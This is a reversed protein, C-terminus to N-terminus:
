GRNGSMFDWFEKPLEKKTIVSIPIALAMVLRIPLWLLAMPLRLWSSWRAELKRLVLERDKFELQFHAQIQALEKEQEYEERERPTLQDFATRVM